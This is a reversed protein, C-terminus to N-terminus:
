TARQSLRSEESSQFEVNRVPRFTQLVVFVAHLMGPVWGCITLLINLWFKGTPGAAFYVAVPPLLIALMVKLTQRNRREKSTTASSM